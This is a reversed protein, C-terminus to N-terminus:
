SDTGGQKRVWARIAALMGKREGTSIYSVHGSAGADFVFLTYVMGDPVIGKLAEAIKRMAEETHAAEGGM